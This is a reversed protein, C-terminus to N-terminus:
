KGRSSLANAKKKANEMARINRLQKKLKLQRETEFNLYIEEIEEYGQNLEEPKKGEVDKCDWKSGKHLLIRVADPARSKTAWHMPTRLFRDVHNIDANLSILYEIVGIHNNLSAYFIPTWFDNMTQDVDM